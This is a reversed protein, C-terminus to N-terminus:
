YPDGSIKTRAAAATWYGGRGYPCYALVVVARKFEV